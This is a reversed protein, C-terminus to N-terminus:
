DDDDEKEKSGHDDWSVSIVERTIGHIQVTAERDDNTEIKVLFYTQNDKTEHWLDDVEGQVQQLAIQAAEAETLGKPQDNMITSASSLIVGSFADIQLTTQREADNVIVKFVNNEIKEISTISGNLETLAITKIEEETRETKQSPTTKQTSARIESFSLIKGSEADLKILYFRNQKELEIHYQQDAFNIQSVKGHYRKQILKEAEQETLIDASPSLRGFQQWSVFIIILILTGIAASFWSKKKM